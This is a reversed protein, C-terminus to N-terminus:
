REALDAIVAEVEGAVISTDIIGNETWETLKRRM